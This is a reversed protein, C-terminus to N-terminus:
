QKPPDTPVQTLVNGFEDQVFRKIISGVTATVGAILSTLLTKWPLDFTPIQGVALSNYIPAFFGILVPVITTFLGTKLSQLIDSWNISFKTSM